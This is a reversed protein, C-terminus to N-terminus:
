PWGRKRRQDPSVYRWITSHSVGYIRAAAHLTLRKNNISEMLSSIQSVSLAPKRGPPGRERPVKHSVTTRHEPCYKPRRGRREFSHEFQVGCFACTRVEDPIALATM